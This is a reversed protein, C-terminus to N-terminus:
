SLMNCRAQVTSRANPTTDHNSITTRLQSRPAAIRLCLSKSRAFSRVLVTKGAGQVGNLGLFFPPANEVGAYRQRHLELRELVFPICLPSKDDVIETTGPYLKSMTQFSGASPNECLAEVDVGQLMHLAIHYMTATRPDLMHAKPM